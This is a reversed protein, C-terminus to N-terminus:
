SCNIKYIFLNCIIIIRSLVEIQATDDHAASKNTSTNLVVM